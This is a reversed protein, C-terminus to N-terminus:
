KTLFEIMVPALVKMSVNHSQKAILQSEANPMAQATVEVAKRLVAPSKEGGLVLTPIKVSKALKEPISFDGMIEMDYPLTHAVATLKKWFPLLRMIWVLFAPAGMVKTIFFKIADGRRGERILAELQAKCDAPPQHATKDVGVFPPEYLILKKIGPIEAAAALSLAAGSSMGYLYASGGAAKVLAAIDEIERAVAYQQADGSDGRGRRDFNIVTFNKSLLGSLELAGSFNRFGMAGGVLIVVPGQGSEDYAILTGDKSQVTKM